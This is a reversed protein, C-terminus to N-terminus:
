KVLSAIAEAAESGGPRLDIPFVLPGEYLWEQLPLPTAAAEFRRHQLDRRQIVGCFYEPQYAPNVLEIVKSGKAAALLNAMAAGHPAVVTSAESVQALQDAVTGQNILCSGVSALRQQWQIEALVPRRLAKGRPLWCVGSAPLLVDTNTLGWFQELWDFSAQAPVGFHATFSPVILTEAQLHTSAPLLREPAIGLKEISERVWPSDGGNHWLRLKPWRKLAHPWIRGLRPLLDLQWHYYNEGSLEAVALVPGSVKEILPLKAEVLQLQEVAVARYLDKHPCSPWPWSYRRCLQPWYHDNRDVVAIGHSIHWPNTHRQLWIRGHPLVNFALQPDAPPPELQCIQCAQAHCPQLPWPETTSPPPALAWAGQGYGLRAYIAALRQDLQQDRGCSWAREFHQVARSPVELLCLEGWDRLLGGLQDVEAAGPVGRLLADALALAQRRLPAIPDRPLAAAVSELHSVVVEREAILLSRWAALAQQPHGAELAALAEANVEGQSEIM